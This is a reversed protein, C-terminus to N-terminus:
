TLGGKVQVAMKAPLGGFGGNSMIVIHLPGNMGRVAELAQEVQTIIQHKGGIDAVQRDLWEYEGFNAWFVKDALAASALLTKEHVGMKMTNSRPEIFAWIPADGVKKRLGDLTLEIATPHHAFDDYVCVGNAEMVLELRRKVGPFSCLAEVAHKIQVGIHHAALIAALGNLMNHRGTMSWAVRGAVRSQQLVEFISGDENIMQAQLDAAEGSLGFTQHESWCGMRLTEKIAPSDVPTIVLGQGPVTRVLHHFQRQIDSLDRFIDAHDFELNNMILTRPRYHVFKSRKDFFASDYEDAEIVFFASEGLRASSDFGKPVGGILYGPCLGVQELIWALMTTTTTKGHTGSVALVWRDKLVQDALWQPGSVYPIGKDLVYEVMPNGRGMANGIVVVDPVPQLHAPHYGERVDIGANTLQTSMPPYTNQDCGSVRHGLERALLALSGMFTGCIGMIYIHM